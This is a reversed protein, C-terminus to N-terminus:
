SVSAAERERFLFKTITGSRIEWGTYFAQSKSVLRGYGSM